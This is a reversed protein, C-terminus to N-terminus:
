CGKGGRMKRAARAAHEHPGDHEGGPSEHYKACRESTKKVFSGDRPADSGEGNEHPGVPCEIKNRIGQIPGIGLFGSRLTPRKEFHEQSEYWCERPRRKDQLRVCGKAKKESRSKKRAYRCEWEKEYRVNM